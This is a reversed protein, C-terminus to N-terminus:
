EQEKTLAAMSFAKELYLKHAVAIITNKLMLKVQSLGADEGSISDKIHFVQHLISDLEQRFYEYAVETSYSKMKQMDFMIRINDMSLVTKTVAMFILYAIQDRYYLKKVSRPIMGKKVYNSIMSPTIELDPFMILYENIYKATQDLYLGVNPIEEYKPLHFGEISSIITENFTNINM